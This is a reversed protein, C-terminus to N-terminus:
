LIKSRSMTSRESRSKTSANKKVVLITCPIKFVEYTCLMIISELLTAYYISLEMSEGNLAKKNIKCVHM